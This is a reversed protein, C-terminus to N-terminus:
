DSGDLAEIEKLTILPDLLGVFAAPHARHASRLRMVAGHYQRGYRHRNSLVHAGVIGGTIPLDMERRRPRFKPNAKFNPIQKPVM